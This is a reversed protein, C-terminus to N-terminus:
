TRCFPRFFNSAAGLTCCSGTIQLELCTTCLTREAQEKKNRSRDWVTKLLVMGSGLAPNQTQVETGEGQSAPFVWPHQTPGRRPLCCSCPNPLMKRPQGAMHCLAFGPEATSARPSSNVRLQLARKPTKEELILLEQTCLLLHFWNWVSIQLYKIQVHLPTSPKPDDARSKKAKEKSM